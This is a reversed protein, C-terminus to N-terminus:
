KQKVLIDTVGHVQTLQQCDLSALLKRLGSLTPTFKVTLTSTALSDIDGYLIDEANLLGLGEIRFTVNKLIHPLPNKFTIKAVMEKGVVADGVPTLIIDPTRLRFNFRTALVQQTENVRGLVTLMLAAQDVLQDKYMDYPVTWALTQVERPKLTVVIEDKKVTGKLVGTYYMIAVQCYLKTSRKESSGNNLTFSLRADEGVWPGEGEVSVQFKVDNAVASPYVNPKSGYRSATEVAIREAESGEPHKYLHTIDVRYDAGVAKTSIYHGVVNKENYIQTFTGNAQRQWFIRDSNVEAFVFPADYKLYVLGDRIAAVPTPGCCFTGQSTEQPTADVVQWGGMGVQLDPRAMWSENWVHFNWISDNNLSEIPKMKEDFYVDTTLSVDTDHASSFNTICRTPIGLCRLVTTTVGAFVWCQGYKVPKGGSKHYQRLIEVSGNWLTPSTGNEYNNSWNGELVGQDDPSNVMASVLRVINVPDGWGSARAPTKELIYLCAALVGDAFQGFIWTRAGIQSDSGYYLTGVDNLVYENREDEKDMFVSDDKCWPNFLLYIDNEPKRSYTNSGKPTWTIVSLEYRGILANSPTNVSLKIRTDTQEIIKAEWSKNELKDVLPVIVLTGKSLMPILGLRLELHLKDSKPNFSRTLEIWMQFSQGRRIILNDSQYRDTHHELRNQGTKSKLLDISRVSLQGYNTGHYATLPPGVFDDDHTVYPFRGFMRRNRDAAPVTDVVDGGTIFPFRSFLSRIWSTSSFMSVTQTQTYKLSYHVLTDKEGQNQVGRGCGQSQTKAKLTIGTYIKKKINYM